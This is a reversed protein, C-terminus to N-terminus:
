EDQFGLAQLGRMYESVEAFKASIQMKEGSVVVNIAENNDM